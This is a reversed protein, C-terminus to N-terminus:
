GAMSNLIIWVQGPIRVQCPSGPLAANRADGVAIPNPRGTFVKAAAESGIMAVDLM